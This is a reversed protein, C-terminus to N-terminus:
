SLSRGILFVNYDLSSGRTNEIVLNTGSWAVNNRNATALTTTFTNTTFSNLDMIIGLSSGNVRFEATDRQSNTIIIKGSFNQDAIVATAANAITIPPGGLPVGFYTMSAVPSSDFVYEASLLGTTNKESRVLRANTLTLVKNLGFRCNEIVLRSGAVFTMDIATKTNPMTFNVNRLTVFLANRLKIGNRNADLHANDIVVSQLTQATSELRISWAAGDLGQETRINQIMLGFSAATSTTDNWLIGDQGQVIATNRITTSSFSVGDSFEICPRTASTGVLECNELLFHDVNLSTFFTNQAYVVPRACALKTDTIRLLQRGSAKIGISDGLWSGTAIAVGQVECNAANVYEIATKASTDAGGSFGIYKVSNENYGGGGGNNFKLATAAAGPAFAFTTVNKGQGVISFRQVATSFATPLTWTGGKLYVTGGSSLATAAATLAATAGAQTGYTLLGGHDDNNKAIEQLAGEVTTASYYGGADNSGVLAAGKGAATSAIDSQFTTRAAVEAALGSVVPGVVADVQDLTAQAFQDFLAPQSTQFQTTASDLTEQNVFISQRAIADLDTENIGGGDVFDALPLGNNRSDRYIVVTHGNPVAPTIRLVYQSVFSGSTVVYDHRVPITDNSMSYAFVHDTSIYGGSFNFNWDTTTGDALWRNQSGLTLTATAM